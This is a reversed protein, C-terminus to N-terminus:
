KTGVGINVADTLLAFGNGAARERLMGDLVEEVLRRQETTLLATLGAVTPDSNAVLNWLQKGSGFWIQQAITEVSIERLGVGSLAGLLQHRQAMPFPPAAPQETAWSLHRGVAYMAGMFFSLTEVQHPPGCAILAVRGGPKTVRTMECLARPLDYVGHQSASVDFLDDELELACADTLRTQVHALDEARARAELRELMAPSRDTALVHAGLRAAPISLAGSGAAVDLFRIGPRLGVRKLAETGLRMNAPTVFDDYGGAIDNWGDRTRELTTM